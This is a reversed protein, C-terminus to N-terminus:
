SVFLFIVALVSSNYVIFYFIYLGRSTDVNFSMALQLSPMWEVGVSGGDYGYLHVHRWLLLLTVVPAAVSMWVRVVPARRPVALGLLGVLAPCFVAFILGIVPHM